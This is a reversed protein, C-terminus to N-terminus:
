ALRRDEAAKSACRFHPGKGGRSNGRKLPVILRESKRKPRPGLGRQFWKAEGSRIEWTAWPVKEDHWEWYGPPGRRLGDVGREMACRGEGISLRTPAWMMVKSAQEPNVSTAARRNAPGGLTPQQGQLKVM